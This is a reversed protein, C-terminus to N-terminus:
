GEFYYSRFSFSYTSASSSQGPSHSIATLDLLPAQRSVVNLFNKLGTYDLSGALVVSVTITRLTGTATASPSTTTATAGGGDSVSVSQLSMNAETAFSQMQRFIGPIDKKRPVVADLRAIDDPSVANVESRLARLEDLYVLQADYQRKKQTYDLGGLSQVQQVRPLVLAVGGIVLIAIALGIGFAQIHKEVYRVATHLSFKM